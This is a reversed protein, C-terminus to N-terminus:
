NKEVTKFIWDRYASTRGYVGPFGARACGRGFSVVGILLHGTPGDRIILPGGSDGQCSDKGGQEYGACVHLGNSIGSGYANQCMSSPLQKVNVASLKKVVNGQEQQAGWGAVEACKRLNALKKETQATPLLALQSNPINAPRSLKLLLIDNVLAGSKDGFNPHKIAKSVPIGKASAGGNSTVNHVTFSAQSSFCHAATLVWDQTILSGGCFGTSGDKTARVQVIFPWNKPSATRGNIIRMESMGSRPSVCEITSQASVASGIGLAMMAAAFVNPIIRFM